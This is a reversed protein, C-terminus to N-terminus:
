LNLILIPFVFRVVLKTNKMMASKIVATRWKPCIDKGLMSLPLLSFTLFYQTINVKYSYVEVFLETIYNQINVM